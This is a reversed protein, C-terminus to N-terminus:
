DNDKSWWRGCVLISIFFLFALGLVCNCLESIVEAM